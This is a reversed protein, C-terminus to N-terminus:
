RRHDKIAERVKGNWMGWEFQHQTKRVNREEQEGRGDDLTFQHSLNLLTSVCYLLLTFAFDHDNNETTTRM